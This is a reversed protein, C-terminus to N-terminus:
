ELIDLIIEKKEKSLEEITNLYKKLKEIKNFDDHCERSVIILCKKGQFMIESRIVEIWKYSADEQIIRYKQNNPWSKNLQYEKVKKQYDPHLRSIWLNMDSLLEEAKVRYLKEYAENIYLYTDTEFDAIALGCDMYKVNIELLERIEESKKRDTIDVFCGILGGLKGHSDLIAKKTVLSWKKNRTGPTHSERVIVKGNLLVRGDEESNKKADMGPFFSDDTLGIIKHSSSLGFHNLFAANATIYKQETDKIYFMFNTSNMLANTIVFARRLTKILSDVGQSLLQIKENEWETAPFTFAEWSDSYETLTESTKEINEELDSIEGVSIRLASALKRINKERPIRIGLEWYWLTGRSVGIDKAVSIISLKKRTRIEKVKNWYFKMVM